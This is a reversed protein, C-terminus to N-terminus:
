RTAGDGSSLQNTDVTLSQAQGNREVTLTLQTSDGLSRFVEMGQAPDNLPTGNVETVLDGPRLGLASFQQRNRGPYVRYGKLQGGPMYPQPRVIEMFTGANQNIMQQVTPKKASASASTPRPTPATASATSERPLRLAELVGGRNLIVRDLLVQHLTAGGPVPDKIFFVKEIGSGDAIIAHASEDQSDSVAARLTLNLRTDPADIADSAVPEPSKDAEGFLHANVIASYDQGPTADLNIGGSMQEPPQWDIESGAPVALWILRALYYAILVVLGLSIWFPLVASARAAIEEPSQTNWQSLIEQMNM